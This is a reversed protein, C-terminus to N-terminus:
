WGLSTFYARHFMLAGCVVAVLIPPLSLLRRRLPGASFINLISLLLLVGLLPYQFLGYGSVFARLDGNAKERAVFYELARKEEVTLPRAPVWPETTEIGHGRYWAMEAARRSAVRWKVLGQSPDGNRYERRPLRGGAQLNLYEIRACIFAAVGALLYIAIMKADWTRIAQPSRPSSVASVAPDDFDEVERFAKRVSALVAPDDSLVEWYTSDVARLILWPRYEESRYAEFTGDIVQRTQAALDRIKPGSIRPANEYASELSEVSEISILEAISCKWESSLASAGVADLLEKLDFALHGGDLDRIRIGRM